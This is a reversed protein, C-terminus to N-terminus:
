SNVYRELIARADTEGKARRRSSKIWETVEDRDFLVIRRSPKYFPIEGRSAMAKLANRSIGLEGAMEEATLFKKLGATVAREISELKEKIAEEM